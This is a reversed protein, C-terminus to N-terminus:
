LWTAKSVKWGVERGVKRDRDFKFCGYFFAEGRPTTGTIQRIASTPIVWGHSAIEELERYKDLLSEQRNQSGIIELLGYIIDTADLRSKSADSIQEIRQLTPPDIEPTKPFDAIAGGLRIHKDLRDLLDLQESSVFGKAVPIIGLGNIRDYVAQKSKLGYRYQLTSIKTQGTVKM